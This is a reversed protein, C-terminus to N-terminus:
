SSNRSNNPRKSCNLAPPSPISLAIARPKRPTLRETLVRGINILNDAIVGLGVWRHMGADREYLLPPTRPTAQARQIRGECGIGGNRLEASWREKSVTAAACEPVWIVFRV